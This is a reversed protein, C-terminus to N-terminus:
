PAAPACSSVFSRLAEWYAEGGVRHTENHPAGPVEHFRKPELAAEYLRRGLGYPVVEDAPSHIFLKPCRVRRIRGLSDLRTRILTRPVFPLLAAVMDPISTFGSQVVLGAPVVQAALDIAPACGLSEGFVVIRQAPVGRAGTLLDWAARADRYL